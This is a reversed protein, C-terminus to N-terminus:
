IHHHTSSGLPGYDIPVVRIRQEVQPYVSPFVHMENTTFSLVSSLQPPTLQPQTHSHDRGRESVRVKRSFQLAVDAYRGHPSQLLPATLPLLAAALELTLTEGAGAGAVQPADLVSRVVDVVVSPDGAKNLAGAVGRVDGKTWFMKTVQLSTLRAALIGSVTAGDPGGLRALVAAEDLQPAHSAGDGVNAGPVFSAFDLGM